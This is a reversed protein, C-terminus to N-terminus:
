FPIDDLNVELEVQKITTKKETVPEQNESLYIRLYPQKNDKTAKENIFGVVRFNKLKGTLYKKGGETANCWLSLYPEKSLEKKDDLTYIKLDPEKPNKKETNYFGKLEVNSEKGTFYPKGAKSTQKWMAFLEKLTSKQETAVVKEKKKTM